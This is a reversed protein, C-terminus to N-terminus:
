RSLMPHLSCDNWHMLEAYSMGRTQKGCERCMYRVSTRGRDNVWFSPYSRSNKYGSPKVIKRTRKTM